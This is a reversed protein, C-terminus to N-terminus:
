KQNKIICNTTEDRIKKLFPIPNSGGTGKARNSQCVIYRSVMKLHESRFNTLERVCAAYGETMMFCSASGSASASARGQEITVLYERHERPMYERMANLFGIGSQHNGRVPCCGIPKDWNYLVAYEPEDAHKM